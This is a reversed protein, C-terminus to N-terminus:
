CQNPNREPEPHLWSHPPKRSLRIFIPSPSDTLHEIYESLLQRVQTLNSSELDKRGSDLALLRNIRRLTLRARKCENATPIATPQRRPRQKASM